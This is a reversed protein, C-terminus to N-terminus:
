NPNKLSCRAILTMRWSSLGKWFSEGLSAANRNKGSGLPLNGRKGQCLTDFAGAM